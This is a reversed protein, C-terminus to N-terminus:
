CLAARGRASSLSLLCSSPVPVGPSAGSSSGRHIYGGLGHTCPHRSCCLRPGAPISVKLWRRASTPRTPPEAGGGAGSCLLLGGETTSWPCWGWIVGLDLQAGPILDHGHETGPIAPGGSSSCFNLCGLSETQHVLSGWLWTRTGVQAWPGEGPRLARLAGHAWGSRRACGRVPGDVSVLELESGLCSSQQGLNILIVRSCDNHRGPVIRWTPLAPLAATDTGM